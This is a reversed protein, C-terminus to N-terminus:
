LRYDKRIQVFPINKRLVIEYLDFYDRGRSRTLIAQLKNVADNEVIEQDSFLDLDESLSHQLYFESLATGGTLYYQKTLIKNEAIADLFLQQNPTLITKGM